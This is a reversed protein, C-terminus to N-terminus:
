CSGSFKKLLTWWNSFYSFFPVVNVYDTFVMAFSLRAYLSTPIGAIMLVVLAAYLKVQSDAFLPNRQLERLHFIVTLMMLVSTALGPRVTALVPFTDQPRCLFVFAWICFVSFVIGPRSRAGSAFQVIPKKAAVPQM